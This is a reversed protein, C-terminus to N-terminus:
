VKLKKQKESPLSVERKKHLFSKYYEGLDIKRKDKLESYFETNIENKTTQLTFESNLNVLIKECLGRFEGVRYIDAYKLLEQLRLLNDSESRQNKIISFDVDEFKEFHENKM